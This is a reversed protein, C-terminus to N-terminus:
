RANGALWRAYAAAQSEVEGREIEGNRADDEAMQRALSKREAAMQASEVPRARSTWYSAFM